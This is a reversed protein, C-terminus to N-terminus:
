KGRKKLLRSKSRLNRVYAEADQDAFSALPTLGDFFARAGQAGTVEFEKGLARRIVESVSVGGVRAQAKLRAHLTVQLYIQTRHMKEFVWSHSTHLICRWVTRDGAM